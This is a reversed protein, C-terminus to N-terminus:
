SRTPRDPRDPKFERWLLVLARLASFLASGRAVRSAGPRKKLKRALLLGVLPVALAKIASVWGLGKRFQEARLGLGSLEVRLVERNLESIRLLAQKRAQLEKLGPVTDL